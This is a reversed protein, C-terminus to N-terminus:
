SNCKIYYELLAKYTNKRNVRYSAITRRDLDYFRGIATDNIKM